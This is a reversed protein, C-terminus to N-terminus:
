LDNEVIKKLETYSKDLESNIIKYKFFTAEKIEKEANKIRLDFNQTRGQDRAKLRRKLEEISPPLIFVTLSDPYKDLLTRAGQVDIDFIIPHGDGLAREIQERSIGYYNGHVEAWEIFFGSTVLSDFESKSIFFYDVGNKEQNRPARTTFSINEVIEPYDGVLKACLTSKGAGSPASIIILRSKLKKPM